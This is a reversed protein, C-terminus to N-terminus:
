PLISIINLVDTPNYGPLKIQVLGNAGISIAQTPTGSIIGTTANLTLGSPLEPTGGSGVFFSQKGMCSSPIGTFTPTATLPVNLHGNVVSALTGNSNWTTSILLAADTSCATTGSSNGGGGGCGALMLYVLIVFFKAYNVDWIYFLGCM